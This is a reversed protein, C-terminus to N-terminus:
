KKKHGTGLLDRADLTIGFGGDFLFVEKVLTRSHDLITSCILISSVVEDNRVIREGLQAIAGRLLYKLSKLGIFFTSQYDVLDNKM